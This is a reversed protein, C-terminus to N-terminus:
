SFFTDLLFFVQFLLIYIHFLLFSSLLIDSKHFNTLDRVSISFIIPYRLLLNISVLFQYQTSTHSILLHKTVSFLFISKCSRHYLLPLSYCFFFFLFLFSGSLLDFRFSRILFFLIVTQILLNFSFFIQVSLFFNDYKGLGEARAPYSM